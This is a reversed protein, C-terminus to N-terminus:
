GNAFSHGSYVPEYLYIQKTIFLRIQQVTHGPDAPGMLTMLSKAGEIHKNWRDCGSELLDLFILLFVTAVTADAKRLKPSSVARSLGHIARHKFHLADRHINALESGTADDHDAFPRSSNARHRAALSLVADLLISDNLAIAILTRFPNRESDYVIFLRCICQNDVATLLYIKLLAALPAGHRVTTWTTDLLQVSVRYPPTM